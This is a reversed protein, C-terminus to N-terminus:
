IAVDKLYYKFDKYTRIANNPLLNTLRSIDCQVSKIENSRIFEQNKLLLPRVADETQEITECFVELISASSGTAIILNNGQINDILGSDFSIKSLVIMYDPTLGFDRVLSLDGVFLPKKKKGEYIWWTVLKQLIRSNSNEFSWHNSFIFNFVKLKYIEAFQNVLDSAMAKGYGYPSVPLKISNEHILGSHNGYMETSAFHILTTNPSYDRIIELLNNTVEKTSWITNVPNKFSEHVSSQAALHFVVQVSKHLNFIGRLSEKSYDTKYHKFLSDKPGSSRSLIIIESCKSRLIEKLYNGDRGTGGTIIISGM